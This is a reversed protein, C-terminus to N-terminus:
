CYSESWGMGVSFSDCHSLFLFGILRSHLLHILFLPMPAQLVAKQLWSFMAVQKRTLWIIGPFANGQKKNPPLHFNGHFSLAREGRFVKKKTIATWFTSTQDKLPGHKFACEKPSTHATNHLKNGWKNPFVFSFFFFSVWSTSQTTIARCLVFDPM